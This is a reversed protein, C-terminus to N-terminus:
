RNLGSTMDFVPLLMSLAVFGILFAIALMLIPELVTTFIKVSRDLDAEYRRAIHSLAGSMDGTQEGIALMDTLLPPFIRGEALPASITAGDTVRERAERIERAIVVNGVTSEVIKLADLVPVGNALLSGLTRAFQAFAHATLIRKVVPLRLRMADWRMRGAPQRIARRLLIIGGAIAAAVAWGFRILVHSAGVLIKTPLPLASGLESLIATFRPVVFVLTFIMTILGMTLVIGPYVLAMLVKEGTQQVMDQHSCIRELVDDMQGSAEGARMLNVILSSFTDPHAACAASLAEGQLVRKHLDELVARVNPTLTRHSLTGLAQGLTMGSVLLDSLERLFLSIERSKMRPNRTSSWAFRFRGPGRATVAPLSGSDEIETLLAPVLGMRDLQLLAARRGAAELRGEIREGTRNRAIYRFAPM